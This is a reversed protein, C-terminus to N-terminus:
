FRRQASRTRLVMPGRCSTSNGSERAYFARSQKTASRHALWPMGGECATFIFLRVKWPMITRQLSIQDIVHGARPNWGIRRTSWPWSKSNLPLNNKKWSCAKIIGHPQGRDDADGNQRTTEVTSRPNSWIEKSRVNIDQFVSNIKVPHCLDRRKSRGHGFSGLRSITEVDNGDVNRVPNIRDVPATVRHRLGKLCM